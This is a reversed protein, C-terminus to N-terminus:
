KFNHDKHGCQYNAYFMNLGGKSFLAMDIKCIETKVMWVIGRGAEKIGDWVGPKEEANVQHMMLVFVIATIIKKM